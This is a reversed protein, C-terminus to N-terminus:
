LPADCDDQLRSLVGPPTSNLGVADHHIVGFLMDSQPLLRARLISRGQHAVRMEM